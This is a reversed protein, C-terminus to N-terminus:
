TDSINKIDFTEAQYETSFQLSITLFILDLVRLNLRDIQIRSIKSFNNNLNDNSYIFLILNTMVIPKYIM